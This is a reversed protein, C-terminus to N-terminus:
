NFAHQRVWETKTVPVHTELAQAIFYRWRQMVKEHRADVPHLSLRLLPSSRLLQLRAFNLVLSMTQRWSSRVSYSLTPSWIFREDSLRFIGNMTSTYSFPFQRLAEWASKGLLWAPPIFGKVPWRLRGMLEIGWELRRRAETAAIAAFEGESQTLIRRQIWEVPGRPPPAEDLHYYGHLAIEDGRALRKEIARLFGPYTDIRGRRHYDPVILLTIPIEGFSDLLTLLHSCQPWTDPAVDHISVCAYRHKDAPMYKRHYM